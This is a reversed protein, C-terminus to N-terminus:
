ELGSIINLLTSKGAGNEGLLVTLQKDEFTMNLSQFITKNRYKKQVGKLTIM